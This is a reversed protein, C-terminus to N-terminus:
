WGHMKEVMHGTTVVDHCDSHHEYHSLAPPSLQMGSAPGVGAGARVAMDVTAGGAQM